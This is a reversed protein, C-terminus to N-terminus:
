ANVMVSESVGAVALTLDLTTQQNIAVMVDRRVQPAFATLTVSIEYTGTPVLLFRYTGDPGTATQMTTGRLAPGHLSLAAGALVGGSADRVNGAISGTIQAASDRGIALLIVLAAALPMRLRTRHM